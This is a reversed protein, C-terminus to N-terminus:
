IPQLLDLSNSVDRSMEIDDISKESAKCLQQIKSNTVANQNNNKM